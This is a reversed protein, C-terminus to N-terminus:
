SHCNSPGRARSGASQLLLLEQEVLFLPGWEEFHCGACCHLSLVAMFLYFTFFFFFFVRHLYIFLYSPPRM